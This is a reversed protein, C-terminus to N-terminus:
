GFETELDFVIRVRLPVLTTVSSSPYRRGQWALWLVAHWGRRYMRQDRNGESARSQKLTKRERTKHHRILIARSAIRRPLWLESADLEDEISRFPAITTNVFVFIAKAATSM